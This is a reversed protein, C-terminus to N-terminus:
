KITGILLPLDKSNTQDILKIDWEEEPYWRRKCRGCRREVGKNNGPQYQDSIEGCENDGECGCIHESPDEGAFAFVTELMKRTMSSGTRCIPNLWDKPIREDTVFAMPQNYEDSFVTVEIDTLNFRIIAEQLNEAWMNLCREGSAFDFYNGFSLPYHNLIIGVLSMMGVAPYIKKITKTM